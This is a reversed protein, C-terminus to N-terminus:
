HLTKVARFSKWQHHHNRHNPPCTTRETNEASRRLRCRSLMSLVDRGSLVYPPKSSKAMLVPHEEESDPPRGPTAISRWVQHRNIFFFYIYTGSTVKSSIKKSMVIEQKRSTTEPADRQPNEARFEDLGSMTTDETSRTSTNTIQTLSPSTITQNSVFNFKAYFIGPLQLQNLKITIGRQHLTETQLQEHWKNKM